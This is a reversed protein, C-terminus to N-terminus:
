AQRRSRRSSSTTSHPLTRRTPQRPRVVPTASWTGSADVYTSNNGASAATPLVAERVGERAARTMTEYVNYARAFVFIGFVVSMLASFIFAMELLEAGHESRTNPFAM